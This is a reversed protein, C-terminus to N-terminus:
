SETEMGKLKKFAKGKKKKEDQVQSTRRRAYICSLSAPTTVDTFATSATAGQQSCNSVFVFAVNWENFFFIKKKSFYFNRREWFVM